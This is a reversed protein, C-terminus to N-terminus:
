KIFVLLSGTIYAAVWWIYALRSYIHLNKPVEVYYGNNIKLKWISYTEITMLLLASYGIAGHLTFPTNSSGIIMMITAAVDLIWGISLFYLVKKSVIRSRQESIIAISYSILALTVTTAGIILITKM